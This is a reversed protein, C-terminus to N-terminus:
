DEMSQVNKLIANRKNVKKESAIADGVLLNQATVHGRGIDHGMPAVVKRVLQGNVGGVGDGMRVVSKLNVLNLSPSNRKM